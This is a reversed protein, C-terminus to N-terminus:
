IRCVGLSAFLGDWKREFLCVFWKREFLAITEDPRGRAGTGSHQATAALCTAFCARPIPGGLACRCRVPSVGAWMQMPVPSVGARMQMPVPSVGARM